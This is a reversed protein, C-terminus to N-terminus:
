EGGPERLYTTYVYEMDFPPDKRMLIVDLAALPATTEAGFDFWHQPDDQVRLERTHAHMHGDRLFLDGQELYHINWGRAQAALLMAFTTDKEIHITTIPDM